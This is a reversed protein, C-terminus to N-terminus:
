ELVPSITYTVNLYLEDYKLYNIEGFLILKHHLKATQGPAISQIEIGSDADTLPESYFWCGVQNGEKDLLSYSLSLSVYFDTEQNQIYVYFEDHLDGAEVHEANKEITSLTFDFSLGDPNISVDEVGEVKTIKTNITKEKRPAFFVGLRVKSHLSLFLHMRKTSLVFFHLKLAM